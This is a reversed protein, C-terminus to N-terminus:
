QNSFTSTTVYHTGESWHLNGRCGSTPYWKYSEAASCQWILDLVVKKNVDDPNREFIIETSFNIMSVDIRNPNLPVHLLLKIIILVMRVRAHNICTMIDLEATWKKKMSIWPNIINSGQIIDIPGNYCYRTKTVQSLNTTVQGPTICAGTWTILYLPSLRNNVWPGVGDGTINGTVMTVCVAANVM